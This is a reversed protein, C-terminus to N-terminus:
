TKISVRDTDPVIVFVDCELRFDRVRSAVKGYFSLFRQPYQPTTQSCPAPVPRRAIRQVVARDIM